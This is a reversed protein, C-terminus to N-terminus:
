YTAHCPEVSTGHRRFRHRLGLPAVAATQAGPKQPGTPLKEIRAARARQAHALDRTAGPARVLGGVVVEGVALRDERSQHALPELVERVMQAGRVVSELRLPQM